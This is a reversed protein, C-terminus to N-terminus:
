DETNIIYIKSSDSWDRDIEEAPIGCEYLIIGYKIGFEENNQLVPLAIITEVAIAKGEPVTHIIEGLFWKNPGYQHFDDAITNRVEVGRKNEVYDLMQSRTEHDVLWGCGIHMM